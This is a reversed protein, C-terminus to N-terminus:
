VQFNDFIWFDMEWFDLGDLYYIVAKKKSLDCTLSDIELVEMLVVVPLLVALYYYSLYV